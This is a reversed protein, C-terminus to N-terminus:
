ALTQTGILSAESYGFVNRIKERFHYGFRVKRQFAVVLKNLSGKLVSDGKLVIIVQQFRESSLKIKDELFKAAADGPLM